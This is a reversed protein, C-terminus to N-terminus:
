VSLKKRVLWSFVLLMAIVAIIALVVMVWGSLILTGTLASYIAVVTLAGLIVFAVTWALQIIVQCVSIAGKELQSMYTSILVLTGIILLLAPHTGLILGKIYIIAKALVACITVEALTVLVYKLWGLNNALFSIAPVIGNFILHAVSDAFLMITSELEYIARQGQETNLWKNLRQTIDKVAMVTTNKIQQWAQGWTMATKGFKEDITDGASMIASVVIDSTIKGQSALEKLSTDTNYVGQAFREIEQYAYSAGERVSRLEDGQLTGSALAQVLQYMSSAQEAQSAGGLTYAKAMVEQFRIANDINGKFANPALAMSKSVNGLMDAYGTRANQSATYMKNITDQTAKQDFGNLTNIRNEASTILDGTEILMRAGMVGLYINALRAVKSSLQSVLTSSQKLDRNFLVVQRDANKFGNGLKTASHVAKNIKADVDIGRGMKDANQSVQKMRKSLKDLASLAQKNDIRIRANLDKGAM